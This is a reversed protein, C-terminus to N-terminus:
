CMRVFMLAGDSCGSLAVTVQRPATSGGGFIGAGGGENQEHQSGGCCRLEFVMGSGMM